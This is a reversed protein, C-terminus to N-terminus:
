EAVVEMYNGVREAKYGAALYATPDFKYNATGVQFKGGSIELTAGTALYVPDQGKAMMDEFTGGTVYAKANNELSFYKYGTNLVEFNGSNVTLTANSVYFVHRGSSSYKPKLTVNEIVLDAGNVAYIGGCQSMVLDKVTVNAASVGLGYNKTTAGGAILKYGNGLIIKNTSVSVTSTGFNLDAVINIYKLAKNSAAAKFQEVTAVSAGSVVTYYGDVLIATYGEACFDTANTFEASNNAPNFNAFKGGYVLITATERHADKKNLVYASNNENPFTGGTVIM